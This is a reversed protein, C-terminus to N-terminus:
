FQHLSELCGACPGVTVNFVFTVPWDVTPVPTVTPTAMPPGATIAGVPACSCCASRWDFEPEVQLSADEGSAPRPAV